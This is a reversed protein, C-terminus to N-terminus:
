IILLKKIAMVVALGIGVVLTYATVGAIFFACLGLFCPFLLGKVQWNNDKMKLRASDRLSVLLDGEKQSITISGRSASSYNYDVIALSLKNEAYERNLTLKELQGQFDNWEPLLKRPLQDKLNSWETNKTLPFWVVGNNECAVFLASLSNEWAKIQWSFDGAQVSHFAYLCATLGVGVGGIWALILFPLFVFRLWHLQPTEAEM